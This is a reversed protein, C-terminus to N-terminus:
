SAYKSRPAQPIVGTDAMRNQRSTWCGAGSTIVSPKSNVGAQEALKGITLDGPM